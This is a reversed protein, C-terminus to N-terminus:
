QLALLSLSASAWASILASVSAEDSAQVAGM